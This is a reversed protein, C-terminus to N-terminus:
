TGSQKGLNQASVEGPKKRKRWTKGQSKCKKRKLIGMRGKLKMRRGM